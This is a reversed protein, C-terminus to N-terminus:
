KFFKGLLHKTTKGHIVAVGYKLGEGWPMPVLFNSMIATLVFVCTYGITTGWVAGIVGFNKILVYDAAITIIGSIFTIVAQFENKKSFAIVKAVYRYAAFMVQGLAIWFIYEVAGYFEPGIWFTFIFPAILTISLAFFLLVIFYGYFILVYQKKNLDTPNKLIKFIWPLLATDVPAGLLIIISGIAVAVNYVGLKELGVMSTLLYKDATVIIIWGFSHPILPLGFRLVDKIYEKNIVFHLGDEKILYYISFIMVLVEALLIGTVRGRWDMVILHLCGISISINLFSQLVAMASNPLPREQFVWLKMKISKLSASFAMTLVAIIWIPPIQLTRGLLDAIVGLAIAVLFFLAFNVLIANFLYTKLHFGQDNRDYYARGIAGATSLAILPELNRLIANFIGIVGYDAPSLWRTLLPLMLFPIAQRFINAISYILAPKVFKNTVYNV